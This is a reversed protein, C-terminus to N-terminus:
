LHAEQFGIALANVITDIQEQEIVLPPSLIIKTGVPRVMVGNARAIEAVRNAYGGMPDIPERTAKDTVLDLAVMLGKGRVEGVAAFREPFSALSKLLYDGQKAANAPLNEKEVIDLNALAAACAVPHGSYTYGHMIAGTFNGNNAFAQEIRENVVTAGLPIYGSSIGKALCMIDPKVGWLRSGFMSGSRGFGTVIEDAILLVGYKDCVKRILPWYNEPPVIVGGAGQIPEAIFAAVTDPSQFQIERELMDACIQGLEEPDQSYPNRYLWPTDVHFCGPLLPEYNRRFVTNGNVSAGGFHTGHYGQRLSIFKTRDAQGQLKWYQRALKLATEVSDSGGSSFAVRRMGEPELMGIVKAALEEARPHSIGDFLQFYELEDLQATIAAKIEKRGHGVNVNWLGAVGDVLRNGRDDFVFCGEGRLIRIPERQKMENPHLMPHWFANDRTSM